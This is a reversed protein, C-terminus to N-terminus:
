ESHPQRLLKIGGPTQRILIRKRVEDKAFAYMKKLRENDQITM